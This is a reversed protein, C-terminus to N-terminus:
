HTAKLANSSAELEDKEERLRAVERKESEYDVDAFGTVALVGQIAALQGDLKKIQEAAEAAKQMAQRERRDAREFAAALARIKDEISWGLVFNTADNVARRDDKTHRTPGDRILGERTIGYDVEKLRNVDACCVHNFRRSVESKVWGTLPHEDHFNLRGSVRNADGLSDARIARASPVRHFTFRLGLHQRNIFDAVAVYHCEPVLMSVGFQHLLREIAGTWERHETRVEILEGAFPLDGAPVKAAACVAERITVFERPILVRHKRLTELEASVRARDDIARQRELLQQVQKEQASDRNGKVLGQQASVESQVRDFQEPSEVPVFRNLTRLHNAFEDRRAQKSKQREAAASMQADIRAISQATSDAAIEQLKADREAEDRKRVEEISQKRRRLEDMRGALEIAEERRLALHRHAYYFLAADLLTQLHQRKQKAEESKQHADAIPQLADLQNQAKEIARWCADLENFHPRLRNHIFDTADSGELMHRRIFHNIDGIEKVGIAQNFVELAAESPVGLRSCFTKSYASFSDFPEFGRQRLNKMLERTQGLNALHDKITRDARAIAFREDVNENLEWLVQALLSVSEPAQWLPRSMASFVDPVDEAHFFEEDVPPADRLKLAANRIAQLLDGVQRRENLHATDLVRRLNTSMRQHSEVVKEGERLLHSILRRLLQNGRHDESLATLAAIQDVQEQFQQQRDVSLLLNWFAFFSQGQESERLADHSDLIHGVIAGKTIGPQTQREAIERAVRKFNEEVQRFDSLLERATGLVQGYRENIQVPSFSTVAGTARIRDAEARIANAESELRRIREDPDDSAYKLIEDLGTFISELRSETGVFRAEQLSELWLLARESGTTLEFLPENADSGYYRRSLRAGRRM